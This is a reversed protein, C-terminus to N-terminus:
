FPLAFSPNFLSHSGGRFTFSCFPRKEQTGNWPEFWCISQSEPSRGVWPTKDKGAEHTRGLLLKLAPPLLLYFGFVPGLIPQVLIVSFQPIMIFICDRRQRGVPFESEYTQIPAWFDTNKVLVRFCNQHLALNAFGELM